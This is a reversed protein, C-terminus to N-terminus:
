PARKPSISHGMLWPPHDLKMLRGDHLELPYGGEPPPIDLGVAIRSFGSGRTREAFVIQLGFGDSRAPFADQLRLIEGGADRYFALGSTTSAADLASTTRAAAEVLASAATRLESAELPLMLQAHIIRGRSGSILAVQRHWEALVPIFAPEIALGEDTEGALRGFHMVMVDLWHELDFILPGRPNARKGSKRVAASLLRHIRRAIQPPRPYSDLGPLFTVDPRRWGPPHRAIIRIQAALTSAIRVIRKYEDGYSRAIQERRTTWTRGTEFHHDWGASWTENRGEYLEVPEQPDGYGLLSMGFAGDSPTPSMDDTLLLYRFLHKAGM